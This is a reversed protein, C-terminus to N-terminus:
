RLKSPTLVRYYKASQTNQSDQVSTAGTQTPRLEVLNIWPGNVKESSEVTYTRNAVVNVNFHVVGGEVREAVIGLFSQSDRPSTGTIFEAKNSLGDMDPDASEGSVALNVIEQTTFHAALWLAYSKDPEVTIILDDAVAFEGDRTTLRLTYRGPVTFKASTQLSSSELFKVPAPGSIDTWLNTFVTVLGDDTVQGKLLAVTPLTITQDSGAYVVPPQNSSVVQAILEFDFTIDSSGASSQHIEVAILNTGSQLTSAAIAQEVWTSEDAGGMTASAITTFTIESEPMNNRWVETGNIYVVAGDDRMLRATASAIKTGAPIVIQRRFYTTWYKNAGDPGFGVATIEDGDGYGLQSPGSLWTSDIYGLATWATGLDTGKDSFKWILGSTTLKLEGLPRSLNVTTDSYTEAEGDNATLRLVYNGMGPLQAVTSLSNENTFVAVGPGSIQSWRYTLLNPPNPLGDDSGSGSLNVSVPYSASIIEQDASAQTTPPRNGNNEYGPSAPGPSARWNIVDNGYATADIKELSPGFGAANTPWPLKDNYRIADVELYPVVVSGDTALDPQDPRVLRILEGNDQLTGPYLGLVAVSQPIGYRTRFATPDSSTLVLLGQAPITIGTPFDFDIGEVRWRNTPFAPDFLKISASTINKLEIFEAEGPTPQFRIENIVVPGVKPGANSSGLTMTRQPPYQIEGVSNTHRGLSVGNESAPFSFGDSYGTLEGSANASYLYVEEGHSSFTFANTGSSFSNFRTENLLLYGKAPVISPNPLKFKKPNTRDDTLFWGSLNADTSGPNFLEVTDLQPPDTHAVLETILIPPLNLDADDQGPSGGIKSSTRWNRPDDPNANLNANMPVLSFGRGDAAVPWPAEDLFSVKSILTGVAHRLELTDGSNALHNTYVGKLVVNPYKTNFALRQSALVAFSGAALRTGIPFRYYIGNTIIVGSLDLEKSGINKLEVFELDSSNTVGDDPPHYMIETISLNTFTQILTFPAEVLASWNTGVVTRARLTLSENIVVPGALTRATTSVAGGFLRPDSGDTTYLIIGTPATAVVSLGPAVNGGFVSLSPAVTAPYLNKAKLQGLVIDSRRPMYNQLVDNVAALWTARTYPPSRKADGWRASEGVVARDLQTKRKMLLETAKGASLIGNNFFHKHVHDAVRLRFEANASLKQWVWQPNSKLIDSEGAAWPGTRNEYIRGSLLTHEADHAFFKFGGSAGTRDRMGYFNNPSTNGLFASVPADINGGYLIVLMYDILNDVDVYNPYTPNPRGDTSLGQIKLYADNNTLGAKALAYMKNWEVMTGDTANIAYPGAEVKIVDFNTKSGGFYTAGFSAEPRECSNYIGWYLGNIYLHYYDGREAQHGMALQADRSFLDRMFIGSADGQFSWSYNQFTRLDFADLEDTADKGFLPYELKSPGYDSRFFFRLGHKPNSTSRSFGGRIRIGANIQFGKKGDPHILELSCPREWPRGDQGPNAYIGTASDFLSATPIVLSFSPLTKLDNKITGAYTANTVVEPDMGYDVSNSGWSTPWGAPAKGDAAQRIVDELFLYTAAVVASPKYGTRFAAAQLVTTRTIRLANSYVLGSSVTPILGNTTYRIVANTTTTSVTLDFPQDYFGHEVSFNVDEVFSVLGAGNTVGPSSKTFYLFNTGTADLGYSVDRFQEPFQPELVTVLSTKDPHVLALYEGEAKLSFSAHLRAPNNTRNKGSAYVVLYGAAPVNVSPFAWQTLRAPDDTLFYGALNAANTTTNRIEIWDSYEGNEDVISASNSAMFENIVFPSLSQAIIEKSNLFLFCTLFFIWSRLVVIKTTAIYSNMMQFM